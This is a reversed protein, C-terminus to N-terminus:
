GTMVKHETANLEKELLQNESQVSALERRIFGLQKKFKRQEQQEEEVVAVTSDGKEGKEGKIGRKGPLGREQNVPPGGAGAGSCQLTVAGASQMQSFASQVTLAVAAIIVLILKAGIM